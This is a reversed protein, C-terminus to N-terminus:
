LTNAYQSPVCGGKWLPQAMFDSEKLDVFVILSENSKWEEQRRQMMLSKVM